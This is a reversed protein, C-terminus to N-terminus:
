NRSEFLTRPLDRLWDAWETPAVFAGGILFVVAFLVLIMQVSLDLWSMAFWRFMKAPDPPWSFFPSNEIPLDPHWNWETKRPRADSELPRANQEAVSM